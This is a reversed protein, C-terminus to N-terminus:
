MFGLAAEKKSATLISCCMSITIFFYQNTNNEKSAVGSIYILVARFSSKYFVAVPFPIFLRRTIFYQYLLVLLLVLRDRLQLVM